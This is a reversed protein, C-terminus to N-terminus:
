PYIARLVRTGSILTFLIRSIIIDVLAFPWGNWYGYYSFWYQRPCTKFVEDRTKSWSFENKLETM